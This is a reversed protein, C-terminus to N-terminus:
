AKKETQTRARAYARQRPHRDAAQRVVTAVLAKKDTGM